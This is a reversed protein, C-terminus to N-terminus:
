IDGFIDLYDELGGSSGMTRTIIYKTNEAWNLDDTLIVGLLKAQSVVPLIDKGMTIITTFQYKQTINFCMVSSKKHNLMM